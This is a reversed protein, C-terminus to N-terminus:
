TDTSKEKENKHPGQQASLKEAVLLNDLNIRCKEFSRVTYQLWNGMQLTKIRKYNIIFTLSRPEAQFLFIM